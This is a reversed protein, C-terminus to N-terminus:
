KQMKANLNPSKQKSFLKRKSTLVYRLIWLQDLCIKWIHTLNSDSWSLTDHFITLKWIMNNLFIHLPHIIQKKNKSSKFWKCVLQGIQFSQACQTPISWLATSNGFTSVNTTKLLVFPQQMSVNQFTRNYHNKRHNGHLAALQAM